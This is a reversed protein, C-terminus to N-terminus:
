RRLLKLMVEVAIEKGHDRVLDSYDKCEYSQPIIISRIENAESFKEAAQIGPPDSDFLVVVETFRSKYENMVSPKVRVTEGQLGIASIDLTDYLSMVDKLAKTIILLSGGQPLKSYGQHITRDVNSLWKISRDRHEPQYIKYSIRNDKHEAYAYTRPAVGVLEQNIWLHQVPFVDFKKLTPVTIGFQSWWWVDYNRWERTQIRIDKGPSDIPVIYTSPTYSGKKMDSLIRVAAESRTPINYIRRIFEFCDGSYNYAHDKFLIKGNRAKFFSFSPNEDNRLPSCISKGLEIQEGLYFSFIEYDPIRSLFEDLDISVFDYESSNIDYVESM